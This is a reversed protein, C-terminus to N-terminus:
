QLSTRSGAGAARSATKREYMEADARALLSKFNEGSIYESLGISADLKVKSQGSGGGISYNGCVWNMLREAQSRAGAMNCDLLIIFEDGGWRGAIDTSRCASNLETAFQQLLEDGALHGLGDNVKKFGDIDIIAVCFPLGSEMRREFHNEMCLRSRLGTLPDVSAIHEAQELRVQFTTVEARLQDVAAKGEETMRDISTKLELASNEISSRIETLDDLNAIQKLRTTVERIQQACRQDRAGVSEATRAMVILIEKVEGAKQQYHRATRRGWDRLKERVSKETAALSECTIAASITGEIEGMGRKFDEGLAPCAQVSCSGMELLASRYAAIAKPLLEGKGAEGSGRMVDQASDMYKKLSIM